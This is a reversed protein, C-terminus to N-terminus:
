FPLNASELLTSLFQIVRQGWFVALAGCILPIAIAIALRGAGVAGWSGGTMEVSLSLYVFMPVGSLVVGILFRRAPHAFLYDTAETPEPPQELSM